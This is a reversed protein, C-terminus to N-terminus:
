EINDSSGLSLTLYQRNQSVARAVQKGFLQVIVQAYGETISDGMTVIKVPQKAKLKGLVTKLKDTAEPPVAGAWKGATTYSAQVQLDHFVHGDAFLIGKRRSM